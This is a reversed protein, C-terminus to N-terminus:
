QIFQDMIAQIEERKKDTVQIMVIGEKPQGYYIITKESAYVVAPLVMLDEEGEVVIVQNYYRENSWTKVAEIAEKSIYGPGSVVRVIKVDKPFNYAELPQFPKRGVRLDIIALSPMISMDLLRKTAVDGVTILTHTINKRVHDRIDVDRVIVEGLPKKLEKRLKDPLVMKGDNDIEGDRIRESAIPKGDGAMVVPIEVVDFVPWGARSRLTNIKDANERTETSCIIAQYEDPKADTGPVTPGYPDDIKVINGRHRIREKEMWNVLDYKRDKYLKITKQSHFHVREYKFKVVYEDSTLGITVREGVEFAKALLKQHGKHLGDFTGGCVVHKYKM